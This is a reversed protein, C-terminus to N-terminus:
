KAGVRVTVFTWKCIVAAKFSGSVGAIYTGAVVQPQVDMCKALNITFVTGGAWLSLEKTNGKEQIMLRALAVGAAYDAVGTSTQAVFPRFQKFRRRWRRGDVGFTTLEEEIPENVDVPFGTDSKFTHFTLSGFKAPETASAPM